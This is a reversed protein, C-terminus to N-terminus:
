NGSGINVNTNWITKYVVNGQSNSYQATDIYFTLKYTAGGYGSSTYTCKYTGNGVTGTCSKTVDINVDPRFQVQDIFHTTSQNKGLKSKYYYYTTGDEESVIWDTNFTAPHILTAVPTGNQTSSLENDNADVWEETYRLRVVADVNGENTAYVVKDVIDGPMWNDPSEFVDTASVKYLAAQFVNEIPNGESSFYAFTGGVLGVLAVLLLAVLSRKKKM